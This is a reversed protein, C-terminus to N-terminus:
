EESIEEQDTRSKLIKLKGEKSFVTYTNGDTCSIGAKKIEGACIPRLVAKLAVKLQAPAAEYQKDIKKSMSFVSQEIKQEKQAESCECERAALENVQEETDEPYARVFRTQGCFKCVGTRDIMRGPKMDDPKENEINKKM